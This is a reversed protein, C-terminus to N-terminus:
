KRMPNERRIANRENKFILIFLANLTPLSKYAGPFYLDSTCFQSFSFVQRTKRRMKEATEREKKRERKRERKTERANERERERRAQM